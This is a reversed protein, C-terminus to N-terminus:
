PANDDKEEKETTELKIETKKKPGEFTVSRTKKNQCAVGCLLGCLALVSIWCSKM